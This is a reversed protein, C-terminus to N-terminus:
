IELTQIRLKTLKVYIRTCNALRPSWNKVGQAGAFFNHPLEEDGHVDLFFDCGTGDMACLVHFVEPSRKLTPADYEGTPAWERNLNAGIANTRLHGRIAGDPNMNPVVHFTLKTKLLEAVMDKADLPRALFGEM